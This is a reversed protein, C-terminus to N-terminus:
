SNNIMGEKKKEHLSDIGIQVAENQRSTWPSCALIDTRALAHYCHFLQKQFFFITHLQERLSVRTERVKNQLAIIFHLASVRCRSRAVLMERSTAACQCVFLSHFCQLSKFFRWSVKLPLGIPCVIAETEGQAFRQLVCSGFLFTVSSSHLSPSFWLMQLLTHSKMDQIAMHLWTEFGWSFFFWM